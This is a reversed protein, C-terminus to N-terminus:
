KKKKTKSKKKPKSKKKKSNVRKGGRKGGSKSGRKKTNKKKKKKKNKGGIYNLIANGNKFGKKNLLEIIENDTAENDKLIKVYERADKIDEMFKKNRATKDGEAIPFDDNIAEVKGFGKGKM